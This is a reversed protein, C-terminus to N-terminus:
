RAQQVAEARAGVMVSELVEASLGGLAARVCELDRQCVIWAGAGFAHRETATPSWGTERLTRWRVALSGPGWGPCRDADAAQLPGPDLRGPQMSCEPESHTATALGLHRSARNGAATAVYYPIEDADPDEVGLEFYLQVGDFGATQPWTRPDALWRADALGSVSLLLACGVSTVVFPRREAGLGLVGLALLAYVGTLLYESRGDTMLIPALLAGAALTIGYVALPRLRASALGARAGLGAWAVLGLRWPWGELHNRPAGLFALDWQAGRPTGLRPILGVDDFRSQPWISHLAAIIAMALGWSVLLWAVARFRKRAPLAVVAAACALASAANMRYLVVGGTLLAALLGWRPRTDPNGAVLWVGGMALPIWLFATHNGYPMLQWAVIFAPPLLLPLVGLLGGWGALRAAFWALLGVTLAEFCLAVAGFVVGSTGFVLSLLWNLGQVLLTGQAFHGYQYTAIFGAFTGDHELGGHDVHWALSGLGMLEPSYLLHAITRLEVLRLAVLLLVAVLPVAFLTRRNPHTGPVVGRHGM